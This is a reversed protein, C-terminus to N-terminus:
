VQDRWRRWFSITSYSALLCAACSVWFTARWCLSGECIAKGQSNAASVFAYLYSFLPTGVFPAYTMMGFNRGFNRGGWVASIISPLITFIAGYSIGVGVSLIWVAGRDDGGLEMWFFVISLLLAPITLFVTRSARKNRPHAVTGIPLCTTVPSIFDALFGVIIRSATNSISLIKIHKSTASSIIQFPMDVITSRNPLSLVITGINSIVMEAAGITISCYLALFWFYRDKLPHQSNGGDCSALTSQVPTIQTVLPSTETIAENDMSEIYSADAYKIFNKRFTFAGATHIVATLIALFKLLSAADLSESSDVFFHSGIFSLLLPSLGFLTMTTGAALGPHTPYLKSASFLSSFYSFVTGLGALLFFFTLRYFSSTSPKTIEVSTKSIELSSSIFATFFFTAATLSCTSPGYLDIVKGVVPAFPYQGIMGALIITTVQPQHLKLQSALVPSFMPFIFVGGATLSNAVISLCALGLRLRTYHLPQLTASFLVM